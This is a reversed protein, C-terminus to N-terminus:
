LSRLARQQLMKSHLLGVDINPIDCHTTHYSSLLSYPTPLDPTKTPRQLFNRFQYRRQIKLNRRSVCTNLMPVGSNHDLWIM